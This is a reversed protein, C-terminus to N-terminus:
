SLRKRPPLDPTQLYQKSLRVLEDIHRPRWNNRIAWIRLEESDCEVRQIQLHAFMAKADRLDNPHALGTSLNIHGTLRLLEQELQADLVPPRDPRSENLTEANWARQWDAETEDIWPVYIVIKPAHLSDIINMDEPPVYFALVAEPQRKPLTMVSECRVFIGETVHVAKGKALERAAVRGFVDEAVAEPPTGRAPVVVTLEKIGLEACMVLGHAYATKVKEPDAGTNPIYIRKM